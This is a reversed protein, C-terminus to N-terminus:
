FVPPLSRIDVPKDPMAEPLHKAYQAAYARDALLWRYESEQIERGIYLKPNPTMDEYAIQGNVIYTWVYPREWNIEGTVPDPTPQHTIKLAVDVGGKVLKVAYLGPHDAYATPKFQAGAGPHYPRRNERTM